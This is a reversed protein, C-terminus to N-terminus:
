ANQEETDEEEEFKSIKNKLVKINVDEKGNRTAVVVVKVGEPLAQELMSKLKALAQGALDRYEVPIEGVEYKALVVDNETLGKSKITDMKVEHQQGKDDEFLLKAM